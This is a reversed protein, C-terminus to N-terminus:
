PASPPTFKPCTASACWGVSRVAHGPLVEAPQELLQGVVPDLTGALVIQRGTRNGQFPVVSAASIVSGSGVLAWIGRLRRSPRDNPVRRTRYRRHGRHNGTQCGVAGTAIQHVDHQQLENCRHHIAFPPVVHSRACRVSGGVGMAARLRADDQDTSGGSRSMGFLFSDAPCGMGSEHRTWSTKRCLELGGRRGCCGDDLYPPLSRRECHTRSVRGREAEVRPSRLRKSGQLCFPNQYNRM